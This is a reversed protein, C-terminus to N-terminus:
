IIGIARLPAGVCFEPNLKASFREMQRAHLDRWITTAYVADAYFAEISPSFNVVDDWPWPHPHPEAIVPRGLYLASACRTSSVMGCPVGAPTQEALIQVIVRCQRMMADRERWPVDLSAIVRVCEGTAKSAVLLRDIMQQRRWTMKGYFGFDCTPEIEPRLDVLSPAHGLEVSATPAFQSYWRTVHPGPVLHLIADAHKAVAPFADQRRRMGPDFGGNFGEDTPEETAVIIFRCGDARADAIAQVHAPDEFAELVVNYGLDGGIFPGESTSAEHGLAAIQASMIRTIDEVIIQGQRCHNFRSFNFIM